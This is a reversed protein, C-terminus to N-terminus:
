VLLEILQVNSISAADATQASLDLEDTDFRVPVDFQAIIGVLQGATPASSFTVTGANLDVTFGVSQLVADLYVSVTGSVLKTIRRAYTTSGSTYRKEVNFVTQADDGTGIVQVTPVDPDGIQFDTWDKFRFGHARGERAYFFDIIDDFDERTQIGYGIDWRSRAREWEINRQEAGSALIKVNTRFGPGGQAGREINDPLRVEHFAM